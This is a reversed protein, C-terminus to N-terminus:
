RAAVLQQRGNPAFRVWCTQEFWPQRDSAPTIKLFKGVDAVAKTDDWVVASYRTLFRSLPGFAFDAPSSM